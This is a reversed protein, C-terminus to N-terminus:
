VKTQKDKDKKNNNQQTHKGGPDAPCGQVFHGGPMEVGVASSTDDSESLHDVVDYMSRVVSARPLYAASVGRELLLHAKPTTPGRERPAPATLTLRETIRVRYEHAGRCADWATHVAATSSHTHLSRVAAVPKDQLAHKVQRHTRHTATTDPTYSCNPIAGVRATVRLSPARSKDSELGHCPKLVCYAGPIYRAPKGCRSPM